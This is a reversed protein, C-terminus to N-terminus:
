QDQGFDQGLDQQLLPPIPPTPSFLCPPVRGWDHCPYGRLWSLLVGEGWALVSTGGGFVPSPYRRGGRALVLNGRGEWGHCSTGEGGEVRGEGGRRSPCTLPVGKGGEVGSLLALSALCRAILM